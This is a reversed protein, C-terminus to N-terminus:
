KKQNAEWYGKVTGKRGAKTEAEFYRKFKLDQLLQEDTRVRVEPKIESPKLIFMEQTGVM